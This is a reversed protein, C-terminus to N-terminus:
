QLVMLSFHLILTVGVAGPIDPKKKRVLETETCQLTSFDIRVRCIDLSVHPLHVGVLTPFAICKDEELIPGEHAEAKNSDTSDQYMDTAIQLSDLWTPVGTGQVFMGLITCQVESGGYCLKGKIRNYEGHPQGSEPRHNTTLAYDGEAGLIIPDYIARQTACGGVHVNSQPAVVSRVGYRQRQNTTNKRNYISM